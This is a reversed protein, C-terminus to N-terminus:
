WSSYALKKSYPLSRNSIIYFTSDLCKLLQSIIHVLVCLYSGFHNMQNTFFITHSNTLIVLMCIMIKTHLVYIMIDGTFFNSLMNVTVFDSLATKSKHGDCLIKQLFFKSRIEFENSVYAVHMQLSGDWQLRYSTQLAGPMIPHCLM